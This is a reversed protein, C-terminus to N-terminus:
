TGNTNIHDSVFLATRGSSIFHVSGNRRMGAHQTLFGNASCLPCDMALSYLINQAFFLVRIRIMRKKISRIQTITIKSLSGVIALIFYDRMLKPHSSFSILLGFQEKIIKKLGIGFVYSDQAFLTKINTM